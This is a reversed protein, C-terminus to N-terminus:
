SQWRHRVELIYFLLDDVTAAKSVNLPLKKREKNIRELILALSMPSYRESLAAIKDYVHKSMVASRDYKVVAMDRVIMSLVDLFNGIDNLAIIKGDLKVIDSSRNLAVLVDLATEYLTAYESSAAINRAKGPQGDCCDAAIASMAEDLGMSLLTSRIAESSFREIYIKSSRSKVTELMASENAVGLFVTVDAPPEEFTKLLKNQAPINMADARHIFYLKRGELPKINVTELMQKIDEVKIKGKEDPYIHMIDPHNGHLVQRCTACNMCADNQCYVRAAALLFFEDTLAEDPSLVMYAHRIGRQVDREFAAYARSGKLLKEFTLENM